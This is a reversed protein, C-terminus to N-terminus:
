PAMLWDWLAMARDIEAARDETLLFGDEILRDAAERVRARYADRAPYLDQVTPRPDTSATAATDTRALPIM